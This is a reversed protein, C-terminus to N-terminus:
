NVYPTSVIEGCVDTTLPRLDNGSTQDHRRKTAVRREEMRERHVPLRPDSRSRTAGPFPLKTDVSSTRLNLLALRIDSGNRLAKKVIPKLNRVRKEIFGNSQAYHPSSTVHKIGLADVFWKFPQGSYPPENDTMIEDPRGFLACYLKLRDTVAHSTVPTRM